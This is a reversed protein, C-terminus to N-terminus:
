AISLTSGTRFTHSAAQGPSIVPDVRERKLLIETHAQYTTPMLLGVLVAGLFVAIFCFMMSRQHRFGIAVLDKLNVSFTQDNTHSTFESM